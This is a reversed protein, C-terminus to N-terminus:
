NGPISEGDVGDFGAEGGGIEVKPYVTTGAPPSEGDVGDFGAEGGGMEVKPYVTAGPARVGVGPDSAPAAGPAPRIKMHAPVPKGVPQAGTGVKLAQVWREHAAAQTKLRGLVTKMEAQIRAAGPTGLAKGHDLALRHVREADKQMPGAYKTSGEKLGEKGYLRSLKGTERLLSETSGAMKGPASGARGMRDAGPSAGKRPAKLGAAPGQGQKTVEAEVKRIDILIRRHIALAESKSHAPILVEVKAFGRGSAPSSVRTEVKPFLKDAARVGSSLVLAVAPILLLVTLKRKM